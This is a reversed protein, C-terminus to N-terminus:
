FAAGVLYIHYEIEYKSSYYRMRTEYTVGNHNCIQRLITTMGNYTLKRDLYFLKKSCYYPRITDIFDTEYGHYIMKRYAIQDFVFARNKKECVKELLSVLIETPVAELFIM